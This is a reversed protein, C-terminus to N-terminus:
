TTTAGNSSHMPGRGTRFGIRIQLTIDRHKARKHFYLFVAVSALILVTITQLQTLSAGTLIPSSSTETETLSITTQPGSSPATTQNHIPTSMISQSLASTSTSSTISTITAESLKLTILATLRAVNLLKTKSIHSITDSATHYTDDPWYILMLNPVHNDEFTEHDSDGYFDEVSFSIHLAQRSENMTQLLAKHTRSIECQFQQGAGVMDLNLYAITKDLPFYPHEAYAESGYLGEEEGSWAVFLVSWRPRVGISFVRAIEMMVAVGSGNDNAGPLIAGNEDRGGNDYHAGIIVVSQSAGPDSGRIFGLVNYGKAQGACNVDLEQDVSECIPVQFSANYTGRDGAPRLGLSNFYNGIYNSALDAGHTGARRGDFRAGTLDSIISWAKDADIHDLFKIYDLNQYDGLVPAALSATMILILTVVVLRKMIQWM